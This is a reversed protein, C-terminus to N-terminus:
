GKAERIGDHPVAASADRDKDTATGTEVRLIDGRALMWGYGSGQPVENAWCAEDM